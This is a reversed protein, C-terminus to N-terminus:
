DVYTPEEIDDGSYEIIVSDPFDKQCKEKDRYVEFSFLEVGGISRPPFGNVFEPQYYKEGM